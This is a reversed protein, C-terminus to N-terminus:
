VFWSRIHKETDHPNNVQICDLGIEKAPYDNGGPFIADGLFGIDRLEVGHHEAFRKIGWGKDMGKKTIDITTTGGIKVEHEPLMPILKELMKLRITKEPDFSKKIEIPAQQGLASFAISSGRDEIIEGYTTSADYMGQMSTLLAERIAVKEEEGLLESYVPNWSTGDYQFLRTGCNPLIHLRHLPAYSPLQDVMQAKCQEWKSGTIVAVHAQTLLQTIADAMSQEMNTKAESLTDDLDFMIVKKDTFQMKEAYRKKPL